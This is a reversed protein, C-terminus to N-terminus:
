ELARKNFLIYGFHFLFSLKEERQEYYNLSASIPGIPSHYVLGVSAIGYRKDFAPGLVQENTHNLLLERHPQFIYAQLRFDINKMIKFINVLGLGAFNFSRFQSIFVTKSDVLPTFAPAVLLTANRTAFFGQDSLALDAYFGLTLRGISNMYNEYNLRLQTWSQGQYVDPKNPSTSGPLLNERALTKRLKVSFYVGRSAYQKRNLTNHEYNAFFSFGHLLSADATDSSLFNPSDYYQNKINLYSFGLGYKQRNGAPAVFNLAVYNDNQILYSPKKDEFFSSSSRFYDFQNLTFEPEIYMPFSGAIEYRFKLQASSYLKGYYANAYLSIPNKRWISYKLSLFATNIPRSAFNGGIQASFEKAPKINVNLKYFKKEADYKLSPFLRYIRDDTALKFYNKEFKEFDIARNKPLMLRKVYVEQRKNIGSANVEGLVFVPIKARFKKRKENILKAPVRDRIAAKIRPLDALTQKYGIEIIQEAKEFDFIEIDDLKPELLIGNDCIVSYNTNNAVMSKIQSIIDDQEPPKENFSVNSGILVDADFERLLTEVPFNNYLGGDFLLKGDVKVPTFYFPFAMSARISTSLDGSKFEVAKKHYIDSAMCRFPIFLSDFNYKAVAAPGATNKILQFDMPRTDLLSNPIGPTFISDLSFHFTAVSANEEQKTFQYNFRENIEGTTANQFSESLVYDHMEKPSMGIAYMAGVLAGSSTGAIYDIPINNEELAKIVGIHALGRAGGGSLVLGVKQGYCTSCLLAFAFILAQRLMMRSSSPWPKYLILNPLYIFLVLM